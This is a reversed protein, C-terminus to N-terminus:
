KKASVVQQASVARPHDGLDMLLKRLVTILAQREVADLNAIMDREDDLHVAMAKDVNTLGKATLKVLMSRGDQPDLLREVLGDKALRGLRNTMAGSSILLSDYLTTPSLCYEPGARRLAALVSFRGGQVGLRAYVGEQRKEIINATRSIRGIIGVPILDFDPRERQWHEIVQDVYDRSMHRHIIAM